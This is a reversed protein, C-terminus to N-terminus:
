RTNIYIVHKLIEPGQSVNNVGFMVWCHTHLKFKKHVLYAILSVKCNCHM